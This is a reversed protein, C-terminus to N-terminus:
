FFMGVKVSPGSGNYSLFMVANFHSNYLIGERFNMFGRQYTFHIFVSTKRDLDKIFFIGANIGVNFFRTDYFEAHDASFVYSYDTDDSVENMMLVPGAAFKGKLWPTMKFDITKRVSVHFYLNDGDVDHTIRSGDKQVIDYVCRKGSAGFLLQWGHNKPSLYDAGFELSFSRGHRYRIYSGAFGETVPQNSVMGIAGFFSLKGPQSYVTDDQASLRCGSVLLFIFSFCRIM